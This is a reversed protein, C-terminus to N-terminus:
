NNVNQSAAFFLRRWQRDEEELPLCQGDECRTHIPCLIAACSAAAATSFL